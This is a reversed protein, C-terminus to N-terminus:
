EHSNEEPKKNCWAWISEFEEGTIMLPHIKPADLEIKSGAPSVFYLRGYMKIKDDSM